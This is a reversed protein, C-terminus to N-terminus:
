NTEQYRSADRNFANAVNENWRNLHLRKEGTRGECEFVPTLLEDLARSLASKAAEHLDNRKAVEVLVQYCGSPPLCRLLDVSFLFHRDGCVKLRTGDLEISYKHYRM